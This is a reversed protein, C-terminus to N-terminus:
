LWAWVGNGMTPNRPPLGATIAVSYRQGERREDFGLAGPRAM